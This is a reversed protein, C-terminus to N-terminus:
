NSLEKNWGKLIRIVEEIKGQNLISVIAEENTSSMISCFLLNQLTSEAAESMILKEVYNIAQITKNVLPKPPLLLILAFETLNNFLKPDSGDSCESMLAIVNDLDKGEFILPVEEQSLDPNQAQLSQKYFACDRVKANFLKLYRSLLKMQDTTLKLEESRARNIVSILFNKLKLVKDLMLDRSSAIIDGLFSIQERKIFDPDMSILRNDMIWDGLSQNKSCLALFIPKILQAKTNMLVALKDFASKIKEIISQQESIMEFAETFENSFFKSLVELSNEKQIDLLYSYLSTAAPILNGMVSVFSV